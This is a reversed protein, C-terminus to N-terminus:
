LIKRIVIDAQWKTLDRYDNHYMRPFNDEGNWYGLPDVLWTVPKQSHTPPCGMSDLLERVKEPTWGRKRAVIFVRQKQNM